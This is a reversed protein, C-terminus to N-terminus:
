GEGEQRLEAARLWDSVAATLAAKAEDVGAATGIQASMPTDPAGPLDMTWMVRGYYDPWIAGATITGLTAWMTGDARTHWTLRATM